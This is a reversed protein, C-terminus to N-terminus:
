REWPYKLNIEAQDRIPCPEMNMAEDIYSKFDDNQLLAEHTAKLHIKGFESEPLDNTKIHYVFANELEFEQDTNMEFQVHAKGDTKMAKLYAERLLNAYHSAHTDGDLRPTAAMGGLLNLLGKFEDQSIHYEVTLTTM